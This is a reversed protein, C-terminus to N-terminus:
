GQLLKPLWLAIAPFLTLLLLLLLDAAIFPAVGRYITSLSIQPAMGHLIFVIIGIPPIIMGLEIVVVNIVGWWIVDYGLKDIVPLVFPLTILMAAIEDFVSGLILYVVLLSLIIAIGPMQAANIMEILAEPVRALSIFYSFISAGIIITYIMATASACERMGLWISDLSLRNRMLAFALSLVAAVSAAENVTFIGSYLGCFIILMLLGVPAARRILPWRESWPMKASVPAIKPQLRVILTITAVNLAIALLAPVLSAVFLDFIFAKAAICYLIMVISPPILSKLTGGAAITAASFGPAYGRRIMEPLAAKAFTAATATSSGCVAGFTACGGITAYALGGRRHGVLAAAANYVDASFGAATAFTGMLLFLPVSALDLSSLLGSPESSLFTLAPAWGAQLAFGAVGVVIMAIGIPIQLLMLVLLAALGLAGIALPSM